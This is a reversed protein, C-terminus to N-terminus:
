KTKTAAAPGATRAMEPGALGALQKLQADTLTKAAEGVAEIYAMRQKARLTEIERVKQEIAAADPQEMGTLSWVSNEITVIQQQYRAQAKQADVKITELGKRQQASLTIHEPHDLFFGTAGMHYIGPTGAFAPLAIPAADPSVDAAPANPEPEMPPQSEMGEMPEAPPEKASGSMMGMPSDGGAPMGGPMHGDAWAPSLAFAFLGATVTLLAPTINVRRIHRSINM